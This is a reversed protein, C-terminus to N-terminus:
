SRIKIMSYNFLPSTCLKFLGALENRYIYSTIGLISGVGLAAFGITKKNYFRNHPKPNNVADEVIQRIARQNFLVGGIYETQKVLRLKGYTEVTEEVTYLGEQKALERKSNLGILFDAARRSNDDNRNLQDRSERLRKMFADEIQTDTADQQIRLRTAASQNTWNIGYMAYVSQLSAIFISGVVLSLKLITKMFVDKM